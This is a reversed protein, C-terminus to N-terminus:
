RDDGVVVIENCVGEVRALRKAAREAMVKEARTEVAGSLRVVRRIVDVKVETSDLLPEAAFQDFVEGQLRSEAVAVGDDDARWMEIALGGGSRSRPEPRVFAAGLGGRTRTGPKQVLCAVGKRALCRPRGAARHGATGPTRCGDHRPLGASHLSMDYCRSASANEM